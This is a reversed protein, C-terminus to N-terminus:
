EDTVYHGVRTLVVSVASFNDQSYSKTSAGSSWGRKLRRLRGYSYRIGILADVKVLSYSVYSSTRSDNSGFQILFRLIM